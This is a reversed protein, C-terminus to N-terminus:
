ARTRDRTAFRLNRPVPCPRLAIGAEERRPPKSGALTASLKGDFDRVDFGMALLDALAHDAAQPNAALHGKRAVLWVDGTQAPGHGEIFADLRAGRGDTSLLSGSDIVYHAVIGSISAALRDVDRKQALLFAPGEVPMPDHLYAFVRGGDPGTSRRRSGKDCVIESM